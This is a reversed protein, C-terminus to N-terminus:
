PSIPREDDGVVVRGFQSVSVDDCRRYKMCLLACFYRANGVVTRPIVIYMCVLRLLICYM